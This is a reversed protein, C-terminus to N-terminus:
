AMFVLLQVVSCEYAPQGLHKLLMMLEIFGLVFINSERSTLISYTNNITVLTDM